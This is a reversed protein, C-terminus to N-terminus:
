GLKFSTTTTASALAAHITTSGFRGNSFNFGTLTTTASALAAHM